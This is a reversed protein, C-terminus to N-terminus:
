RHEGASGGTSTGAARVEDRLDRKLVKGVGSVPLPTARVRVSKPVKFGALEGRAFEIVAEPTLEFGDRPVVEAHVAEGWVPHPVGVVAVAGIGPHQALAAEVETSYVNEGGTIIMDKLRDVLYLHGESDRCGVDGTHLWGGALASATADERRWYGDLVSGSRVCLEGIEGDPLREGAQDRVSVLVGPLPQGVSKLLEGGRQHDAHSLYSIPGFTETMGYSQQIEASPFARLVQELVPPTIPAAGYIIYRLAAFAEPTFDPSNMILQLIQVVAPLHTVGYAAADAIVQAPAFSTRMVVTNGAAPFAYAANFAAIHFLPNVSVLVAGDAMYDWQFQMRHLSLMLKRNSCLAGKPVGTTGGTYLMLVPDAEAPELPVVADASRWGEEDIPLRRCKRDLGALAVATELAGAYGADAFAVAPQCDALLVALEAPLLRINLPVAALGALAAAHLVNVFEPSADGLVAIRDGPQCGLEALLGALRLSADVHDAVSLKREGHIFALREARLERTQLLARHFTLEEM